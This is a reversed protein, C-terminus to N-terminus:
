LDEDTWPAETGYDVEAAQDLIETTWVAYESRETFEALLDAPLRSDEKALQLKFTERSRQSRTLKVRGAQVTGPDVLVALQEQIEKAERDLQRETASVERKANKVHALRVALEHVREDTIVTVPEPTHGEFCHAAYLCFHGWAEGPKSCVRAPMTGSDRWEVVQAIREDCEQGLADWRESSAVVIVRDEEMTAPDVIALAISQADLARAYGRAQLLKSHIQEATPNQSSLVEIVTDTAKVYLDCHGTGLEWGVRLEALADATDESDARLEPPLWHDPGSDVWVKMGNSAALSVIFDHGVSIGRFLYRDEAVTRDRGPAGEAEYVAKRPCDRTSSWRLSTATAATM